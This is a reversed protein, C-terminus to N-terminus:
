EFLTTLTNKFYRVWEKSRPGIGKLEYNKYNANYKQLELGLTSFLQYVAPYQYYYYEFCQFTILQSLAACTADSVEQQLQLEHRAITLTLQLKLEFQYMSGRSFTQLSDDKGRVAEAAADLLQLTPAIM